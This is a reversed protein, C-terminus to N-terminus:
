EHEEGGLGLGAVSSSSAEGSAAQPQPTFSLRRGSIGIPWEMRALMRECDVDSQTPPPRDIGVLVDARVGPSVSDAFLESSVSLGDEEVTYTPIVGIPMAVDGSFLRLLLAWPVDFANQLKVMVGVTFYDFGSLCAMNICCVKVASGFTTRIGVDTWHELPFGGGSLKAFCGFRMERHEPGPGAGKLFREFSIIFFLLSAAGARDEESPVTELLTCPTLDKPLAFFAITGPGAEIANAVVAPIGHNTGTFHGIGCCAVRVAAAAGPGSLNVTAALLKPNCKVVVMTAVVAM